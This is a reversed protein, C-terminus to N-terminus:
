LRGDDQQGPPAGSRRSFRACRGTGRREEKSRGTGWRRRQRGSGRSRRASGCSLGPFPGVTGLAPSTPSRGTTRTDAPSTWFPAVIRRPSTWHGHGAPHACSSAPRAHIATHACPTFQWAGARLHHQQRGGLLTLTKESSV